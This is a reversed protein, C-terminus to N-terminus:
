SQPLSRLFNAHYEDYAKWKEQVKGSWHYEWIERLLSHYLNEGQRKMEPPCPLTRICKVLSTAGAQALDPHWWPWNSLWYLHCSSTGVDYHKRASSYIMGPDDQQESITSELATGALKILETYQKQLQNNPDQWLAFYNHNKLQDPSTQWTSPIIKTIQIGKVQSVLESCTIFEFEPDKTIENFLEIREQYHHGFVEVDSASCFASGDPECQGVFQQVKEKLLNGPYSRLFETLMRQSAILKIGEFDYVPTTLCVNIDFSSSLSSQDVVSYPYAKAVEQLINENIALEPPFFGLPEKGTTQSLIERNYQLQRLVSSVPILPALPHYIPSNLLEVQGRDTLIKLSNFFDEAGLEKLQLILSGSINFTMKAQPNAVLARLVPLYCDTLIEGTVSLNQTPPQYFHLVLAWSRM